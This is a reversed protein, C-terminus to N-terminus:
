GGNQRNVDLDADALRKATEMQALLGRSVKRFLRQEKKTMIGATPLTTKEPDKPRGAVIYEYHVHNGTSNGTSGVYGIVDGKNVSMGAHLGKKYNAMHAYLTKISGNHRVIVTKGYGGKRGVFHIRGDGTAQIPTGYPAAYDTGTHPRLTKFIPHRRMPNFHSSIRTQVPRRDFLQRKLEEDANPTLYHTKGDSLAFRIRQFHKEGKNYETALLHTSKIREGEYVLDEYIAAVKDGVRIDRKFNLDEKLALHIEKTINRPIGAKAADYNLSSKITFATRRKVKEIAYKDWQAQYGSEHKKIVFAEHKKSLYVLKRIENGQYQAFVSAGQHDQQLLTQTSSHNILEKYLSAVVGLQQFGQEVSEDDKLSYNRWQSKSTDLSFDQYDQAYGLYSDVPSAPLRLEQTLLYPKHTKAQNHELGIHVSSYVPINGIAALGGSILLMRASWAKWHATTPVDDAKDTEKDMKLPPASPQNDLHNDSPTKNQEWHPHELHQTQRMQATITSTKGREIIVELEGNRINYLRMADNWSKKNNKHDPSAKKRLLSILSKYEM